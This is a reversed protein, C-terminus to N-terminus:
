AGLRAARESTVRRVSEIARTTGSGLVRPSVSGNRAPSSRPVVVAM